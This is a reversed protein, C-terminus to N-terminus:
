FTREMVWFLAVGTVVASATPVVFRTFQTRSGFLQLLPLALVILAIQGLEIGLNFAFLNLLRLNSAIELEALVGAFGFGHILGFTYAIIWSLRHRPRFMNVVGAIVVSAAIAIEVPKGPLALHGTVALTLTISHAVTFATVIATITLFREKLTGIRAIPLLLLLLFALHDAGILIHHIGQKLFTLAASTASTAGVDITTLGLDLVEARSGMAGNITLFTKAAPDIAQLLRNDVDVTDNSPLCSLSFGVAISPSATLRVGSSASGEVFECLEGASRITFSRALYDVIHLERQKFEQWLIDGDRNSDLGLALELDSVDLEIDLRAPVDGDLGLTASAIGTDHAHAPMAHAMVLLVAAWLVFLKQLWHSTRAHKM